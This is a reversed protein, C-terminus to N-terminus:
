SLDQVITIIDQVTEVRELEDDPIEIDFEIEMALVIEISDLSDAGLDDMLRTDPLITDQSVNFHSAIHRKITEAQNM